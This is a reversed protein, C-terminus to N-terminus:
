YWSIGIAWTLNTPVLAPPDQSHKWDRSSSRMSALSRSGETLSYAILDICKLILLGESTHATTGQLVLRPGAQWSLVTM